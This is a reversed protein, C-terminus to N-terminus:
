LGQLAKCPHLSSLTIAPTLTAWITAAPVVQEIGVRMCLYAPLIPLLLLEPMTGGRSASQILQRLMHVPTIQQGSPTFYNKGKAPCPLLQTFNHSPTVTEETTREQHPATVHQGGNLTPQSTLRAIPLPQTRSM